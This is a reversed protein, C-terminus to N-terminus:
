RRNGSTRISTSPYKYKSVAINIRIEVVEDSTYVILHYGLDCDAVSVYDDDGAEASVEDNEGDDDPYGGSGNQEDEKHAQHLLVGVLLLWM